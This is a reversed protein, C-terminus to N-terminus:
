RASGVLQRFQVEEQALSRGVARQYAEDLPYANLERMWALVAGMGHHRVVHDVFAYSLLYARRVERADRIEVFTAPLDEIHPLNDRGGNRDLEAVLRGMGQGRGHELVQALGENVFTPCRPAIESVILHTFEHRFAAQIAKVDGDVDAIPLRIKRDFLGAVWDHTGTAARFDDPPYLVVTIKQRPFYDLHACVEARAAELVNVLRVGYSPGGSTAPYRLIFSPTTDTVYDEEVELQRANREGAAAALRVTDEDSSTSATMYADAAESLRDSLNLCDGLMLWIPGQDEGEPDEGEPASELLDRLVTESRALEYRQLLLQALHLGYGTEAPYLGMAKRYDAAASGHRYSLLHQKGRQFYAYALNRVVVEDDPAMRNAKELLQVADAPREEDLAKRAAENLEHVGDAPPIWLAMLITLAAVKM